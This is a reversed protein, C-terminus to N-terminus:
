YWYKGVNTDPHRQGAEVEVAIIIEDTMLMGDSRFGGIPFTKCFKVNTSKSAFTSLWESVDKELQKWDAM